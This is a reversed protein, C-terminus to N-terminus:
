LDVYTPYIQGLETKKKKQKGNSASFKKPFSFFSYTSGNFAM